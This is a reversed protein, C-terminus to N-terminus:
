PYGREGRVVRYCDVKVSDMEWTKTKTTSAAGRKPASFHPFFPSGRTKIGRTKSGRAGSHFELQPKFDLKLKLNFYSFKISLWTNSKKLVFGFELM